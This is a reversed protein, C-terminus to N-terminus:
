EGMEAGDSIAAIIMNPLITKHWAWMGRHMPHLKAMEEIEGPTFTEHIAQFPDGLSRLEQPLWDHHTSVALKCFAPPLGLAKAYPSQEDDLSREIGYWKAGKSQQDRASERQETSTEQFEKARYEDDAELRDAAYFSYGGFLEDSGDGNLVVKLGRSSIHKSMAKKAVHQLDWLLTEGLWVSEEFEDALMQETVIVKEIPLGLHGATRTAIASEDLDGDDPFGITFCTPLPLAARDSSQPRCNSLNAAMGAVASSDVGGSLLLGIPVDSSVLRLRVAELLEARLKEILEETPRTDTHGSNEPYHTRWYPRFEFQEECDQHVVLVHGPPVKKIGEFLTRSGYHGGGQAICKVDWRLHERRRLLEIVGKCQTAVLLQGDFVGYHLPKVGFRDRAVVLKQNKGDYLVLSFEGRLQDLFATGYSKYLAIAMESDSTSKFTYIQELSARLEPEYYLEGNVVVHIDDATGPSHLPQHGASSLDRTSLRVHALGVCGDHSVWVGKADPGRHRQTEVSGISL